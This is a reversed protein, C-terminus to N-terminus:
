KFFGHSLQKKIKFHDKESLPAEDQFNTIYDNIMIAFSRSANVIGGYIKRAEWLRDYSANNKFGIIFAVATGVLAIPLWPLHLWRWELVEYLFVPTISTVTFFLISKMSWRLLAFLPFRKQIYM